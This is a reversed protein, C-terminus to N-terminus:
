LAAAILYSPTRLEPLCMNTRYAHWKTSKERQNNKRKGNKLINQNQLQRRKPTTKEKWEEKTGRSDFIFFPFFIGDHLRIRCVCFMGVNQVKIMMIQPPSSVVSGLSVKSQKFVKLNFLYIFACIQQWLSSKLAQSAMKLWFWATMLIRAAQWAKVPETKEASEWLGAAAWQSHESRNDRQQTQQWELDGGNWDFM